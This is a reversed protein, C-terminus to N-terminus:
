KSELRADLASARHAYSIYKLQNKGCEDCTADPQADVRRISLIQVYGAKCIAPLLNSLENAEYIYANLWLGREDEGTKFGWSTPPRLEKSHACRCFRQPTVMFVFSDNVPLFYNSGTHLLSCRFFFANLSVVFFLFFLIFVLSVLSFCGVAVVSYRFWCQARPTPMLMKSYAGCSHYSDPEWGSKLNRICDSKLVGSCRSSENVWKFCYQGSQQCDM